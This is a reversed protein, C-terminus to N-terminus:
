ELPVCRLFAFFILAFAVALRFGCARLGSLGPHFSLFAVPEGLISRSSFPLFNTSRKLVTAKKGSRRGDTEM